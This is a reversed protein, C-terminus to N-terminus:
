HENGEEESEETDHINGDEPRYKHYVEEDEEEDRHFPLNIVHDLVLVHRDAPPLGLRPLLLLRTLLFLSNQVM